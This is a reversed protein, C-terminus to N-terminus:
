KGTARFAEPSCGFRKKFAATLNSNDPYGCREAISQVTADTDLLLLKAFNLRANQAFDFLTTGYVHKFSQQLRTESTGTKRALDRINYREAFDEVILNKAEAACEKEHDSYRPANKKASVEMRDLVMTLMLLVGAEYFYGALKDSMDFRLMDQVLTKMAPSLARDRGTLTVAQKRDVQELFNGVAPYLDTFRDLYDRTYHIDFTRCRTAKPFNTRNNIFPLYTLDFQEDGIFEEKSGDWSTYINAELPISLELVAIDGMTIFDVSRNIEYESWWISFGNGSFHQFQMSGFDGIAHMGAFGKLKGFGPLHELTGHYVSIREGEGTRIQMPTIAIQTQDM